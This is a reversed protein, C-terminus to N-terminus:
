PQAEELTWDIHAVGDISSCFVEVSPYPSRSYDDNIIMENNHDTPTVRFICRTKEIKIMVTKPNIVSLSAGKCLVFRSFAMFPASMRVVDSGFIRPEKCSVSVERKLAFDFFESRQKVEGNFSVADSENIKAASRKADMLLKVRYGDFVVSVDSRNVVRDTGFSAEFNFINIGPEHRDNFKSKLMSVETSILFIIKKTTLRKVGFVENNINNKINVVSLATDVMQRCPCLVSDGYGSFHNSLEGDGLRLFRIYAALKSIFEHFAEDQLNFGFKKSMFRIELLSKLTNFHASPGSTTYLDQRNLEDAAIACVEEIVNKIYRYKNSRMSCLCFFIAKLSLLRNYPNVEVKYTKYIHSFQENISSLVNNQFSDSAGSAFFSYALMWNVLREGTIWPTWGLPDMWFKRTKRYTNIFSSILHRIYKLNGNGGLAQINKMWDFSYCYIFNQDSADSNNSLIAHLDLPSALDDVTHQCNLIDRGISSNGPWPDTIFMEPNIVTHRRDLFVRYFLGNQILSSRWARLANRLNKNVM